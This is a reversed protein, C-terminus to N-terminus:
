RTTARGGVPRREPDDADFRGGHPESLSGLLGVDDYLLFSGNAKPFPLLNLETQSFSTQGGSCSTTGVSGTEAEM